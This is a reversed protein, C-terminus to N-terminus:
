KYIAFNYSDDQLKLGIKSWRFPKLELRPVQYHANVIGARLWEPSPLVLYDSVYAVKLFDIM